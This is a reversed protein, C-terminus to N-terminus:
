LGTSIKDILLVTASKKATDVSFERSRMVRLIISETREVRSDNVPVITVDVSQQGAPIVVVRGTFPQGDVTMVYDRNLGHKAQGGIRIPVTLPESTGETRSIRFVGPDVDTSASEAADADPATISVVPENDTLSITAMKNNPDTSFQKSRGLRAIISETREVRSDNVPVITVDVAQQGAPIVVVRGTFPQGDVTMVYDRNLGHKAQGGIRIPVTLPESTSETRSIRFVGTDVDTSASEGADADLATISVVPENDTLSITAMKNNPDTSFQKARGLRFLISETREVRSDNIPIITVDVSQQGEPIVVVRGTFPQGDVTMVYDRNLGRKAQGGIRIPIRLSESTTQDRSIRFVGTDVNTSASEGANADLAIVSVVHQNNPEQAAVGYSEWQLNSVVFEATSPSDSPMYFTITKLDEANEVTNLPITVRDGGITKILDLDVEERITDGLAVQLQDNNGSDSVLLDFSLFSADSPIDVDLVALVGGAVPEGEVGEGEVGSGGGKGTLYIKVQEAKENITHLVFNYTMVGKVALDHTKQEVIAVAEKLKTRRFEWCSRNLEESISISPPYPIADGYGEANFGNEPEFYLYGSAVPAPPNSYGWKASTDATEEAFLRPLESHGTKEGLDYIKLINVIGNQYMFKGFGWTKEKTTSSKCGDIETSLLEFPAFYNYVMSAASAAKIVKAHAWTLEPADLSILSKVRTKQVTQNRLSIALSAMLGAGNSHGILTLTEPRFGAVFLKGASYEGAKEGNKASKNADLINYKEIVSDDSDIGNPNSGHKTQGPDGLWDIALIEYDGSHHADDYFFKKAFVGMYEDTDCTEAAKSAETAKCNLEDNWGHTLIITETGAAGIAALRGPTALVYIGSGSKGANPEWIYIKGVDETAQQILAPRSDATETETLIAIRSPEIVIDHLSVASVSTLSGITEVTIQNASLLRSDQLDLNVIWPSASDEKVFTNVLTMNEAAFGVYITASEGQQVGTITVKIDDGQGNTAM